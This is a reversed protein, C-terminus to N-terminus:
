YFQIGQETLKDIWDMNLLELDDSYDTRSEDEDYELFELVIIEFEEQGLQQWDKQLEKNSHSGAKLQFETRNIKGKLNKVAELYHRSNVKNIVAFIGMDPKMQKYQAQLQKKRETSIKM